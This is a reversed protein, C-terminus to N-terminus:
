IVMLDDDKGDNYKKPIKLGKLLYNMRNPSPISEDNHKPTTGLIVICAGFLLGSVFTFVSRLQAM